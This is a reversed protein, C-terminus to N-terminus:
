LTILDGSQDVLTIRSIEVKKRMVEIEDRSALVMATSLSDALTATAAEVSVSSWKPQASRHLIHGNPGLPTTDPSSTAIAGGRLTRMGLDGHIPDRLALQWPGGLSRYEGINVLANELGHSRLAETVLDTAFGQAIGNFTLEQAKELRVARAGFRVREWGIADIAATPSRGEALAKWLPQISPDFLGDTIAHANNAARMLELFQPAPQLLEGTANLRSLASTSDYLNFLSEVQSIVRRAEALAAKAPENAGRITLSVDAGFARGKWTQASAIKPTLAFSASIILFRRRSLTV